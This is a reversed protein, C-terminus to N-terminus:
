VTGSQVAVFGRARLISQFLSWVGVADLAEASVVTVNGTLAPDLILTRKTIDSIQEALVSIDADRLNITYTDTQARLPTVTLSM